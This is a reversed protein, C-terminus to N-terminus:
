LLPGFALVMWAACFSDLLCGSVGFFSFVVEFRPVTFSLIRLRQFHGVFAVRRRLTAATRIAKAEDNM